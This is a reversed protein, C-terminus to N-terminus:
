IAKDKLRLFRKHIDQKERIHTKVAGMRKGDSQIEHARELADLDSRARWSEDERPVETKSARKKRTQKKM